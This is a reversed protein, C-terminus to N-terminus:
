HLKDIKRNVFSKVKENFDKDQMSTGDNPMTGRRNNAKLNQIFVRLKKLDEDELGRAFRDDQDLAEMTPDKM